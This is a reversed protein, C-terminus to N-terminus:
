RIVRVTFGVSVEVMDILSRTMEDYVGAVSGVQEGHQQPSSSLPVLM